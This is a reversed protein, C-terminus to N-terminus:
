GTHLSLIRLSSYLKQNIRDINLANEGILLPLVGYKLTAIKEYIGWDPFSNWIEGIGTYGSDTVVKILLCTRATVTGIHNVIPTDLPIEIVIPEVNKIKM